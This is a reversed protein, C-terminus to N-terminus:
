KDDEDQQATYGRCHIGRATWRANCHLSLSIAQTDSQSTVGLRQNPMEQPTHGTIDGADLSYLWGFSLRVNQCFPPHSGANSCFTEIKSHPSQGPEPIRLSIHHLCDTEGLFLVSPLRLQALCRTYTTLTGPETTPDKNYRRQDWGPHPTRGGVEVMLLPFGPM